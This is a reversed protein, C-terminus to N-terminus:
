LLIIVRASYSSFRVKDEDVRYISVNNKIGLVKDSIESVRDINDFSCNIKRVLRLCM